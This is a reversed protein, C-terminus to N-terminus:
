VKEIRVRVTSGLAAVAAWDGDVRGLPYVPGAARPEDGQSVPTPGFFVCFANGPPWYALEGVAMEERQEGSLGELPAGIGGYYEDGWRSLSLKLPLRAALAAAAPSEALVGTLAVGDLDITVSVPM